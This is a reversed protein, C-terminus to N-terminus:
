FARNLSDIIKVMESYKEEMDSLLKFQNRARDLNHTKYDVKFYTNGNLFDTLFRMGCELTILIASFALNEKEADNLVNGAESLFGEAYARFYDLDLGVNDLKTQDEGATSAGYRISDGFDYLVSGPMVTDLDIVALAKGTKEDFLINNLKTDNHTVRLPIKKESILDTIRSMIERHSIVFEIENKCFDTVAKDATYVAPLFENEYRFATNHFNPITESLTYAPFDSLMNQFRGFAAGSKKFLEPTDASDYCISDKVFVYARYCEGDDTRYYHEGDKTSIFNLTEREPDGGNEEIKHRLYDTVSFINNMLGDVDRFVFTNVRQIVYKREGYDAIYTNNIHGSGFEKVSRLEGEFSFADIIENINM